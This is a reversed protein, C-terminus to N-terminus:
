TSQGNAPTVEFDRQFHAGDFWVQTRATPTFGDAASNITTLLTGSTAQDYVQIIIGATAPLKFRLAVLAGAALGAANVVCRRTGASGTVTIEEHHVQSSPTVQFDGGANTQTHASVVGSIPPPLLPGPDFVNVYGAAYVIVGNGTTLGSLALWYPMSDMGNLSLDLQAGSLIFTAQAAIGANWDAKSITPIISGALIQVSLAPVLSGPLPQLNLQLYQLNSLDVANGDVDFIGIAIALSQGRWFAPALGTNADVPAVPPSSVLSAELRVPMQSYIPM